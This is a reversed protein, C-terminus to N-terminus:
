AAPPEGAAVLQLLAHYLADRTSESREEKLATIILDILASDRHTPELRGLVNAAQTRVEDGLPGHWPTKGYGLAEQAVALARRAIAAEKHNLVLGAMQLRKSWSEEARADHLLGRLKELLDSSKDGPAYIFM